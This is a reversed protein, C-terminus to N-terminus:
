HNGIYVMTLVKSVKNKGSVVRVTYMGNKMRIGQKLFNLTVTPSSAPIDAVRKGSLTYLLVHRSPDSATFICKVGGKCRRIGPSVPANLEREVDTPTGTITANWYMMYRADHIRFFPEFELNADASNQFIGPAKYTMKKGAVPTFQTPFTGRDIKLKPASSPDYLTGGPSHGFRSANAILGPMDSTGTKVGLVIPGREIAVWGSVNKLPEFSFQMPLPVFVVDGNNWTRNVEIYSSPQSLLGLTDSGVIAVMNGRPVWSPHRIYLKFATPMTVSVTLVTWEEEPFATEQKIKIGKEKWNLESAIFLNVFLSDNTHMYIFEGYKTHNEMGSGVCCWMAVDPAAYVRYHRPHTPTFYVYGGHTPHQTSLIHNFLAREYFDAYKADPNQRFLGESIKLMNYTNCTEVGNRENIYRIWDNAAKFYEDESNGGIVISRNTTVTKWFFDAARHYYDDNAVEGIRQFGVVKAAQANAHSNNLMDNGSAMPDLLWKHSFKKAFDLYKKDNTLNYADAYLENIGGQEKIGVSFMSQLQADSLGSNIKLGWDCLKIFMTKATENGGYVWADRFGAYTKHINYWPVWADSYSTFNGTKYSRWLAKGNPIGSVYGVFDADSGNADQCKKLETVMYDMRQKCQADGTAAYQMALASLYHGGIHGNLGDWNEYDRAGATSVGAEKRYSFLLRDVTYKLLFSTNLDMANKFPGDLLTVDGLPFENPYLMDQANVGCLAFVSIVFLGACWRDSM